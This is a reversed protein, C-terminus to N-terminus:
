VYDAFGAGARDDLGVGGVQHDVGVHPLGLVEGLGLVCFADGGFDDGHEWAEVDDDDAGTETAVLEHLFGACLDDLLGPLLANGEHEVCITQIKRLCPRLQYLAALFTNECGVNDLESPQCLCLANIDVLAIGRLKAGLEGLCEAANGNDLLAALVVDRIAIVCEDRLALTAQLARTALTISKSTTQCREQGVPLCVMVLDPVNAGLHLPALRKSQGRVTSRADRPLAGLQRELVLAPRQLSAVQSLM